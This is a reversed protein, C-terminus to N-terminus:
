GARVKHGLFTGIWDGNTGSRLMPQGDKSASVLFYGDTTANSCSLVAAYLVVAPCLAAPCYTLAGPFVVLPHWSAVNALRLAALLACESSVGVCGHLSSCDVQQTQLLHM